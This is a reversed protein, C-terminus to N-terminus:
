QLESSFCCLCLDAGVDSARERLLLQLVRFTQHDCRAKVGVVDYPSPHLVQKLDADVTTGVM